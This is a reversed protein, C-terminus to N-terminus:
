QANDSVWGVLEHVYPQGAQQFEGRFVFEHRQRRVYTDPDGFPCVFEATTDREWPESYDNLEGNPGLTCDSDGAIRDSVRMPYTLNIHVGYTNRLIVRVEHSNGSGSIGPGIYHEECLAGAPFVCDSGRLRDFDFLGFYMLAGVTLIILMFAWGYTFLYELAAQAKRPKM